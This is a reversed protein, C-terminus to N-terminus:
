VMSSATIHVIAAEPRPWRSGRVRHVLPSSSPVSNVNTSSKDAKTIVDVKSSLCSGREEEIAGRGSVDLHRDADCYDATADKDLVFM